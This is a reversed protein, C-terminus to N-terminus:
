SGRQVRDWTDAITLSDADVETVAGVPVAITQRSWLHGRRVLVAEVHSDADVLLGDLHGITVAGERVPTGRRLAEEGDPPRDTWLAYHEIGDISDGWGTTGRHPTPGIDVSDLEELQDLRHFDEDDCAIHVDGSLEASTMAVPVLRTQHHRHIPEVAVHTVTRTRPDVVLAAVSGHAGDITTTAAGIRYGSPHTIATMTEGGPRPENILRHAM